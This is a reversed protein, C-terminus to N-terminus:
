HLLSQEFARVMDPVDQRMKSRPEWTDDSADPYGEWKVLLQFGRNMKRQGAIQRVTFRAPQTSAAPAHLTPLPRGFKSDQQYPRLKSVHLVPHCRLLAAPLQLEVAVDSVLKVIAFAGLNRPSFPPLNFDSSNLLVLDGVSFIHQKRSKDARM